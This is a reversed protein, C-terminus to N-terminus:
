GFYKRLNKSVKQHCNNQHEDFRNLAKAAKAKEEINLYSLILFQQIKCYSPDEEFDTNELIAISKESEQQHFHIVSYYFAFEIANLDPRDEIEQLYSLAKDYNQNDYAAKAKMLKDNIITSKADVEQYEGGPLFDTQFDLSNAIEHMSLHLKDKQSPFIGVISIVGVFLIAISFVLIKRLHNNKSAIAIRANEVNKKIAQYQPHSEKHDLLNDIRAQEMNGEVQDLNLATVISSQFEVEERLTPNKSMSLEFDLKEKADMKGRVYALAKEIQTNTLKKM